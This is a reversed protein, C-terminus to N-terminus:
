IHPWLSTLIDQGSTSTTRQDKKKLLLVMVVINCTFIWIKLTRSLVSKSDPITVEHISLLTVYFHGQYM